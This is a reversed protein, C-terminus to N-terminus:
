LAIALDVDPADPASSAFITFSAASKATLDPLSITSCCSKSSDTSVTIAPYWRLPATIESLSFFIIAYWSIPWASTAAICFCEAGTWLIVIIGLVEPANPYVICTASSSLTSIDLSSAISLIVVKVPPRAASSTIKLVQVDPADFSISCAVLIALAITVRRPILSSNSITARSVTLLWYKPPSVERAQEESVAALISSSTNLITFAQWL